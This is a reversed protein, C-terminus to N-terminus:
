IADDQDLGVIQGKKLLNNGDLDPCTTRKVM